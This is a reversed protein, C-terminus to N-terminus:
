ARLAVNKTSWTLTVSGSGTVWLVRGSLASWALCPQQNARDQRVQRLIALNQKDDDESDLSSGHSPPANGWFSSAVGSLATVISTNM